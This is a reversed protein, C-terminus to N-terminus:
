GFHITLNKLYATISGSIEFNIFTVNTFDKLHYYTNGDAEDLGSTDTIEISVWEGSQVNNLNLESAYRTERITSDVLEACEMCVYGFGSGVIKMDATIRSVNSYVNNLKMAYFSYIDGSHTTKLCEDTSNYTFIDNLSSSKALNKGSTKEAASFINNYTGYGASKQIFNSSSYDWGDKIWNDLTIYKQLYRIRAFGNGEKPVDYTAVSNYMDTSLTKTSASSSTPVNYGVMKKNSLLPNGIYGSGAGGANIEIVEEGNIYVHDYDLSSIVIAETATNTTQFTYYTKNDYTVNTLIDLLTSEFTELELAGASNVIGIKNVYNESFNDNWIGAQLKLTGSDINNYLYLGLDTAGPWNQNQVLTIIYYPTVSSKGYQILVTTNCKGISADQLDVFGIIESASKYVVGNPSWIPYVGSRSKDYKM